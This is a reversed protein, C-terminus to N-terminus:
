RKPPVHQRGGEPDGDRKMELGDRYSKSANRSGQFTLRCLKGPESNMSASIFVGIKMRDGGWRWDM